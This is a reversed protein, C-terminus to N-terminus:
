SNSTNRAINPKRQTSQIAPQEYQGEKRNYLKVVKGNDCIHDVSDLETPIEYTILLMELYLDFDNITRLEEKMNKEIVYNVLRLM